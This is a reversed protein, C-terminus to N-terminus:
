TSELSRTISEKVWCYNDLRHNKSRPALHSISIAISSSTTTAIPSFLILRLSSLLSRRSPFSAPSVSNRPFSFL